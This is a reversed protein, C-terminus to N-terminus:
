MGKLYKDGLPTLGLKSVLIGGLYGREWTSNYRGQWGAGRMQAEKTEPHPPRNLSSKYRSPNQKMRAAMASDKQRQEAIGM